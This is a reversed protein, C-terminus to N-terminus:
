KKRKIIKEIWPMFHSVSTYVGPTGNGCFKSGFSVIGLLYVPELNDDSPRSGSGAITKFYLPGGSDGQNYSINTTNTGTITQVKCSDKGPQGGACIQSDSIVISM